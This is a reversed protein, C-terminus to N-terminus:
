TFGHMHEQWGSDELTTLAWRVVYRLKHMLKFPNLFQKNEKEMKMNTNMVVERKRDWELPICQSLSADRCEIPKMLSCAVLVYM